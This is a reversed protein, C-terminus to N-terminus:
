VEYPKMESFKELAMILERLTKIEFVKGNNVAFKIASYFGPFKNGCHTRPKLVSVWVWEISKPILKLIYMDHDTVLLYTNFEKTDNDRVTINEDIDTVVRKIM